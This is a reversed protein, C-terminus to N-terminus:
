EYSFGGTATVPPRVRGAAAIDSTITDRAASKSTTAAAAANVYLVNRGDTGNQFLITTDDGDQMDSASSRTSSSTLRKTCINNLVMCARVIHTARELTCRMPRWLVGWRAVLMGFAREIHIRQSSQFYNFADRQKSLGRGRWPVLLVENAGYAADGVLYIRVREGDCVM